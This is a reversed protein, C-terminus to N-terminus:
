GRREKDEKRGEKSMKVRSILYLWISVEHNKWNKLTYFRRDRKWLLADLEFISLIPIRFTHTSSFLRFSDYYLVGPSDEQIVNSQLGNLLTQSLVKYFNFTLDSKMQETVSPTKVLHFSLRPHGVDAIELTEPLLGVVWTGRPLFRWAWEVEGTWQSGVFHIQKHLRVLWKM